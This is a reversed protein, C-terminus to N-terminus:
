IRLRALDAALTDAEQLLEEVVALDLDELKRFRICSKGCSVKGLRKAFIEPLYKGRKTVLVYLAMYNKQNGLGVTCWDGERGSAGVYHYKGYALETMTPTVMFWPKLGPASKRIIKDLAKLDAARDGAAAFYETRNKAAVRM